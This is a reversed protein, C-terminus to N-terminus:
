PPQSSEGWQARESHSPLSEFRHFVTARAGSPHQSKWAEFGEVSRRERYYERRM